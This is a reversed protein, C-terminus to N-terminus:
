FANNEISGCFANNLQSWYNAGYSSSTTGCYGNINCIPTAACGTNGPADQESCDPLGAPPDVWDPGGLAFSYNTSSITFTLTFFIFIAFLINKM